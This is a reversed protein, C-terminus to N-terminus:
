KERKKRGETDKEKWKAVEMEKEEIVREKNRHNRMENRKKKRGKSEKVKRCRDREGRYGEGEERNTQNRWRMGRKKRGESDKEKWKGEEMEKDEM